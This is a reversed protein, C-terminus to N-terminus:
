VFNPAFESLNEATCLFKEEKFTSSWCIHQLFLRCAIAIRSNWQSSYLLKRSQPEKEEEDVETAPHNREPCSAPSSSSPPAFLIIPPISSIPSIAVDRRHSHIFSQRIHLACWFFFFHLFTVMWHQVYKSLSLTIGVLAIVNIQTKASM